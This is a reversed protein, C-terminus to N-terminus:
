AIDEYCRDHEADRWRYYEVIDVYWRGGLKFMPFNSSHFWQFATSRPVDFTSCFSELKLQKKDTVVNNM